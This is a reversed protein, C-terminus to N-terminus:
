PVGPLRYDVMCRCLVHLGPDMVPGHPTAFPQGLAVGQPNMGPVQRCVSCAGPQIHWYRRLQVGQGLSAQAAQTMALRHGLNVAGFAQTEAIARVRRALGITVAEQTATRIFTVSRGAQQWHARATDLSRIQNPTLLM